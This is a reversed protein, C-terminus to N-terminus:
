SSICASNTTSLKDSKVLIKLSLPDSLLYETILLFFLVTCRNDSSSFVFSHM